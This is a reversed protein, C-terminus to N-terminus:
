GGNELQAICAEVERILEDVRSKVRKKNAQDGGLLANAMELDRNREALSQNVAIQQELAASLEQNEQSLSRLQAQLAGKIERAKAWEVELRIVCDLARSM